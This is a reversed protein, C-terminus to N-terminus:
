EVNGRPTTGLTTEASGVSTEAVTVALIAWVLETQSTEM